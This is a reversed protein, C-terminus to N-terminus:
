VMVGAGAPKPTPSKAPEAGRRRELSLHDLVDMPLFDLPSEARYRTKAQDSVLKNGLNKLMGLMM